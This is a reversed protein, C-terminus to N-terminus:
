HSEDSKCVWVCIGEAGISDGFCCTLLEPDSDDFEDAAASLVNLNISITPRSFDCFAAGDCGAHDGRLSLSRLALEFLSGAEEWFSGTKCLVVFDCICFVVEVRFPPSFTVADELVIPAIDFAGLRLEITDTPDSTETNESIDLASAGDLCCFSYM